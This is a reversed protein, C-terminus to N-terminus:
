YTYTWSTGLMPHADKDYIGCEGPINPINCTTHDPYSLKNAWGGGSEEHM